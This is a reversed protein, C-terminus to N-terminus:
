RAFAGCGNTNLCERLLLLSAQQVSSIVEDNLAERGIGRLMSTRLM